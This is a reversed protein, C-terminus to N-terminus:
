PNTQKPQKNKQFFPTSGLSDNPPSIPRFQFFLDLSENFDDANPNLSDPTVIKTYIKSYIYISFLEIDNNIHSLSLNYSQLALSSIYM